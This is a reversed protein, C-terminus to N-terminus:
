TANKGRRPTPRILGQMRGLPGILCSKKIVISPSPIDARPFAQGTDIVYNRSCNRLGTAPLQNGLGSNFFGRDHDHRIMTVKEHLRIWNYRRYLARCQRRRSVLSLFCNTAINWFGRRYQLSYVASDSSCPPCSKMPKSVNTKPVVLLSHRIFDPRCLRVGVRGAFLCQQRRPCLTWRFTRHRGWSAAPILHVNATVSERM